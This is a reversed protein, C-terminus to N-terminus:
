ELDPSVHTNESNSAESNEWNAVRTSRHYVSVQTVGKIDGTEIIHGPELDKM